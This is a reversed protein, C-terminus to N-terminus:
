SATIKLQISENDYDIWCSISPSRRGVAQPTRSPLILVSLPFIVKSVISVDIDFRQLTPGGVM